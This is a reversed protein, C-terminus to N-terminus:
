SSVHQLIEEERETAGAASREKAPTGAGTKSDNDGGLFFL